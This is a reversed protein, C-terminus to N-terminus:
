LAVRGSTINYKAMKRWLTVRHMGLERATKACNGINRALAERIIAEESGNGNSSVCYSDDTKRTAELIREPLHGAEIVTGECIVFAHEIANELERVNGPFDHKRLLRLAEDSVRRIDKKRKARFKRIFHEILIPLDELRERLPPIHVSIVNIRYYLDERFGGQEVMHKLDQNSSTIIRADAQLMRTSGLPQYEGNNLVRLLKVQLALPMDGIEDLLLTGGQAMQFMGPKDRKADTFAGRTYGFLESELLTEPLAACNIRIYANQKRPSMDHIAHALLEKGSGSPGQILVNCESEAINPLLKFIHQMKENCSVINELGRFRSLKHQLNEIESLDRFFEVAGACKESDDRLLTTSVSVPIKRGDRRIINVRVNSVSKGNELTSRLACGRQCLDTRFIDFCYKGIVEEPSFGSIREAARNLSTIRCEFDTTFVGEDISDFIIRSIKNQKSTDKGIM